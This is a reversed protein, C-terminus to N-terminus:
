CAHTLNILGCLYERVNSKNIAIVHGRSLQLKTARLIRIANGQILPRELVLDFLDKATVAM